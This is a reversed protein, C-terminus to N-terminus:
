TSNPEPPFMPAVIPSSPTAITSSWNAGSEGFIWAASWCSEGFGTRKRILVCQCKSWVPPLASNASVAVMRACALTRLRSCLPPFIALMPMSMGGAEPGASGTTVKSCPSDSHHFPSSIRAIWGPRPCVSPSVTSQNVFLLTTCM